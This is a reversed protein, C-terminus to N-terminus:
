GSRTDEEKERGECCITHPLLVSGTLQFGLRPPLSKGLSLFPQCLLRPRLVGAGADSLDCQLVAKDVLDTSPM